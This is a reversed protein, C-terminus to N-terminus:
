GLYRAYVRSRGRADILLVEYPDASSGEMGPSGLPMGPVALGRAAPREALLRKVERAPVHGELAYGEVIGTHCSGLADPIGFRARYRTPDAVDHARVTFGNARLHAVWKGCCGCTPSKYVDVLPGGQARAGFAPALLAAVGFLVFKRREIM